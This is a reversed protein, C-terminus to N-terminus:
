ILCSSKKYTTSCFAYSIGPIVSVVDLTFINPVTFLSKSKSRFRADRSKKEAGRFFVKSATFFSFFLFSHSILLGYPFYLILSFSLPFYRLRQLSEIPLRTPPDEWLLSGSLTIFLAVSLGSRIAKRDIAHQMSTRASSARASCKKTIIRSNRALVNRYDVVSFIRM